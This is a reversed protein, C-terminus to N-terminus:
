LSSTYEIHLVEVYTDNLTPGVKVKGQHMLSILAENLESDTIAYGLKDEVQQRLHDGIVLAQHPVRKQQEKAEQISLVTNRLIQEIITMIEM